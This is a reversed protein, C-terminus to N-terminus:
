INTQKLWEGVPKSINPVRTRNPGDADNFISFFFFDGSEEQQGFTFASTQKPHQWTTNKFGSIMRTIRSYKSYSFGVQESEKDYQWDIHLMANKKFVEFLETFSFM